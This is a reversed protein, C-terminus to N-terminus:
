VVVGLALRLRDLHQASTPSIGDDDGRRADAVQILVVQLFRAHRHHQDVAVVILTAGAHHRDRYIIAMAAVQSRLVQQAQPVPADGVDGAQGGM